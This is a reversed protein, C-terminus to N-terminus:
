DGWAAVLPNVSGSIMELLGNPFLGLGIVGIMLISVALMEGFRLDVIHQTHPKVSGTLLYQAARLHYVSGLILGVALVAVWAHWTQWAAIIIHLEAVFNITGPMGIGAILALAMFFAFKPATRILSGYDSLERSHTRAYLLSILMFLAAVVLGHAVMQFVAGVMGMSNLSAIGLLVIGIHSFSSYAIMRKMDTQRWALLAGYFIAILALIFLATQLALAAKPLMETARILGYAGMKLLIGSLLISVPGPAEVYTLSLWGHLPFIPLKVGFGILLGLFILIQQQENLGNMGENIKDFAFSHFGAVDFAVLLSLLMLVSGGMTYLLFNLSAVQRKQGGWRNILFFLPILTAEWFIYFLAWDQTTFVGIMASQLLLLWIYYTKIHKSITSISVLIAVWSLLNALLVMPYSIGDIGFKSQTGIMTSLDSNPVFQLGVHQLDFEFYFLGTYILIISSSSLAIFQIFKESRSPTFGILIVTILPLLLLVDLSLLSTLTM